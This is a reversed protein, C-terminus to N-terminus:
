PQLRTMILSKTFGLKRERLLEGDPFLKKMESPTLLSFDPEAAKIWYKNTLKMTRVLLSRPLYGVFPLWTHSEIPFSSAPTQVWWQKGLRAVEAALRQQGIWSDTKFLPGNVYLWVDKKPVTAHEIVSSCYVIDFFRDPFPLPKNEDILVTQYGFRSRGIELLDNRIDAIYINEPEYHAGNLVSAINSGDESGLDLIKTLPGIEFLERFLKARKRRAKASQKLIIERLYKM